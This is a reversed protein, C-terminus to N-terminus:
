RALEEGATVPSPTETVTAQETCTPIQALLWGVVVALIIVVRDLRKSASESRAIERTLNQSAEGLRSVAIRFSDTADVLAKSQEVSVRALRLEIEARVL